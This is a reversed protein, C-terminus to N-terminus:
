SVGERKGVELVRRNMMKGELLRAGKLCDASEERAGM